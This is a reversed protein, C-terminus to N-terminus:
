LYHPTLCISELLVHPNLCTASTRDQLQHPIQSSQAGMTPIDRDSIGRLPRCLSLSSFEQRLGLPNLLREEGLISQTPEALVTGDQRCSTCAKAPAAEMGSLPSPSFGRPHSLWGPGAESSRATLKRGLTLCKVRATTPSARKKQLPIPMKVWAPHDGSTM